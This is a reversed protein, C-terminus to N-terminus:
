TGIKDPIKIEKRLEYPIYPVHLHLHTVRDGYYSQVALALGAGYSSGEVLLPSSEMGEAALVPDIDMKAWDALQYGEHFMSTYGYGPITISLGRINLEKLKDNVLSLNAPFYGTGMSGNIQLMVPAAPKESGYVFYEVIRGDAHQIFKGGDETIDKVNIAGPNKGCCLLPCGNDPIRPQAILERDMVMAEPSIRQAEM